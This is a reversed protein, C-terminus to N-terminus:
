SGDTGSEGSGDTGTGPDAPPPEQESPPSPPPPAPEPEPEPESGGPDSGSGGGSSPTSSSGSPRNSKAPAVATGPVTPIMPAFFGDVIGDEPAPAPSPARDDMGPDSFQGVDQSVNVPEAPPAPSEARSAGPQGSLALACAIYMAAVGVRVGRHRRDVPARRQRSRSLWGPRRAGRGSRGSRTALTASSVLAAGRAALTSPDNTLLVPLGLEVSIQQMVLPIPAGGGVLLVADIDREGAGIAEKLVQVIEQVAPRAIDDHESRVLRFPSQSGPMFQSLTVAPRESLAEKALRCEALLERAADVAESDAPHYALGQSRLGALVHHLIRADLDNGGRGHLVAAHGVRRPEGDRCDAVVVASCTYAGLDLVAVTDPITGSAGSYGKVAAEASSVLRSSTLGAQVLAERVADRARDTWWDPATITIVDAGAHGSETLQRCAQLIEGVFLDQVQRTVVDSGNLDVHPVRTGMRSVLEPFGVDRSISQTSGSTTEAVMAVKVVSAGVDVGLGVSM